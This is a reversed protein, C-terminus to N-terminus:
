KKGDIKVVHLSVNIQKGKSLGRSGVGLAAAGGQEGGAGSGESAHLLGAVRQEWGGPAESASLQFSLGQGPLFTGM